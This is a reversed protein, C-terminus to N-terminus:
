TVPCAFACKCRPFNAAQLNTHLPSATAFPSPKGTSDSKGLISPFRHFQHVPPSPAEQSLSDSAPHTLKVQHEQTPFATLAPPQSHLCDPPPTEPSKPIQLRSNLASPHKKLLPLHFPPHPPFGWFSTGEESPLQQLGLTCSALASLSQTQLCLSLLMTDNNTNAAAVVM